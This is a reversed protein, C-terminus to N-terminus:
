RFATPFSAVPSAGTGRTLERLPANIARVTLYAIGVALVLFVAAAAVSVRAAQDGMAQNQEVKSGIGALVAERALAIHRKHTEEADLLSQPSTEFGGDWALQRVSEIQAKYQIWASSLIAIEDPAEWPKSLRDLQSFSQDINYIRDNLAADLAKRDEEERLLPRGILYREFFRGLEYSELEMSLLSSAAVFSVDSLENNINKLRHVTWLQYGLVGLALLMLVGVSLVVRSSVSM